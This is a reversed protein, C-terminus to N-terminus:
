ICRFVTRFAEAYKVGAVQGWHEAIMTFRELSIRQSRHARIAELKTSFQETIDVLVDPCVFLIHDPGQLRCSFWLERIDAQNRAARFARYTLAAAARHEASPETINHAIVVEPAYEVMLDTVDQVCHSMTQALILPERGPANDNDYGERGFFVRESGDFYSGEKFDLFLLEAGLIDAAQRAERHRIESTEAPGTTFYQDTVEDVYAGVLNNTMMVSVARYGSEVYKRMTGAARVEMDDAHAGFFMVTKGM